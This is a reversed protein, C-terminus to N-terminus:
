TTWDWLVVHWEDLPDKYTHIVEFGIKQHARLSRTNSTSIETVCYDYDKSLLSQHELYLASFVGEGRYNKDICIQGMVYYNLDPLAVNRYVLTDILAFLPRLVPITDRLSPPMVLAFGALLDNDYAVIQPAAALMEELQDLRHQVTIFGERNQEEESLVAKMNAQQLTLINNLDRTNKALGVRWM